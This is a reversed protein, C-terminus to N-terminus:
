PMFFRNTTMYKMYRSACNRSACNRTASKEDGLRTRSFDRRPAGQVPTACVFSPQGRRQFFSCYNNGRGGVFVAFFFLVFVCVRSPGEFGDDMACVIRNLQHRVATPPSNLNTEAQQVQVWAEGTLPWSSNNDSQLNCLKHHQTFVCPVIVVLPFSDDLNVLRTARERYM